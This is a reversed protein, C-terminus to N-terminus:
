ALSTLKQMFLVLKLLLDGAIYACSRYGYENFLVLFTSNCLSHELFEYYLLTVLPANDFTLSTM